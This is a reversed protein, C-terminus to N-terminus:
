CTTSEEAFIYPDRVERGTLLAKYKLLGKWRRREGGGREGRVPAQPWFVSNIDRFSALDQLAKLQLSEPAQAENQFYCPPPAAFCPPSWIPSESQFSGGIRSSNSSPFPATFTPLGTLLRLLRLWLSHALGAQHRPHHPTSHTPVTSTPVM